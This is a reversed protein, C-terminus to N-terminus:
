RGGTIKNIQKIGAKARKIEKVEALDAKLNSKITKTMALNEAKRRSINSQGTAIFNNLRSKVNNFLEFIGDLTEAMIDEM